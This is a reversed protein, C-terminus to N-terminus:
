MSMGRDQSKGRSQAREAKLTAVVREAGARRHTQDHSDERVTVDKWKQAKELLDNVQHVSRVTHQYNVEVIIQDSYRVKFVEAKAGAQQFHKKIVEGSERNAVELVAFGDEPKLGRAQRNAQEAALIGEPSQEYITREIASSLAKGLTQGNLTLERPHFQAGSEQDTIASIKGEEGRQHTYGIATLSDLFERPSKVPKKLQDEMHAVLELRAKERQQRGYAGLQELEPGAGQAVQVALRESRETMLKVRDANTNARERNAQKLGESVGLQRTLVKSQEVAGAHAVAVNGIKELRQNAEGVQRAIEANIVAEQQAKWTEGGLLPVDPLTFVQAAVLQVLPALETATKAQEGYVQKMDQHQRRSGKVGRELGHSAMVDAYETQLQGLTKPNFLTDASLHNKETIPVVVAHIHPTKEDQHLTFSVVNKEGFKEKLFNLNDTVWASGRMDQAQGDHGRQFWEPSATLVIEMARVQDERVKRTVVEAIRQEALTWYDAQDTNIYEQNLSATRAPDANPTEMLRYNHATKGRAVGATKIKAVRLIAHPMALSSPLLSCFPFFLLGGCPCVAFKLFAAFRGKRLNAM